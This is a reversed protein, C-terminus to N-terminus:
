GHSASVTHETRKAPTVDRAPAKQALAVYISAGLLTAAFVAFSAIVAAVVIIQTLNGSLM